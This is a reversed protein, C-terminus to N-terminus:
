GVGPPSSPVAPADPRFLIYAIAACLAAHMILEFWSHLGGVIVHFAMWALAVWRAWYAGRLMYIGCLLAVLRVLEIWLVDSDLPHRLNIESAHFAFGLAGTVIYLWAVITVSLPRKM